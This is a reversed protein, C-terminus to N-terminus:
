SKVRYAGRFTDSAILQDAMESSDCLVMVRYVTQDQKAIYSEVVKMKWEEGFYEIFNKANEEVTFSAVQVQIANSPALSSSEVLKIPEAFETPTPPADPSTEEREPVINQFPSVKSLLPAQSKAVTAIDAKEGEILEIEVPAVGDQIMGLDKAAQFSLDLIRNKEQAPGRDNVKVEVTRGNEAHRVRLVTGFAYTPHATTYAYMDYTEGSATEKGHFDKGYWGATGSESALLSVSLGFFLTVWGIGTQHM